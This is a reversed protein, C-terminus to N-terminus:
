TVSRILARVCCAIAAGWPNLSSDPKSPEDPEGVLLGIVMLLALIGGIILSIIGLVLGGTGTGSPGEARAKRGLYIAVVSGVVPCCFSFLGVILAWMGITRAQASSTPPPPPVTSTVYPVSSAESIPVPPAPPVPPEVVAVEARAQEPPAEPLKPEEEFEHGCRWCRRETDYLVEGCNPCKRKGAGVVVPLGTVPPAGVSAETLDAGCYLCKDGQATEPQEKHCRPCLREEM